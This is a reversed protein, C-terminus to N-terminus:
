REQRLPPEKSLADDNWIREFHALIREFLVGGRQVLFTPANRSQEGMLYPGWFMENDVRFINISPLCTFLRVQFDCNPDARLSQTADLFARVSNQISDRADQEEISRQSAYSNRTSPSEPDILLIRVKARSAWGRFESGYDEKLHKLGFGVIDIARRAARLRRDYEHKIMVSRSEFADDFGFNRLRELKQIDDQHFRVYLYLVLGAVGTAVVSAGISLAAPGLGVMLIIGVAILLCHVLWYNLWRSRQFKQRLTM